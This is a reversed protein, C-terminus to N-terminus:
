EKDFFNPVLKKVNGTSIYDDAIKLQYHPMKRRIELKDSALPYDNHLEHFEKHYQIDNSGSKFRLLQHAYIIVLLCVLLKRPMLNLKLYM